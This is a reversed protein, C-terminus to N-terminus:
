SSNLSKLSSRILLAAKFGAAFHPSVDEKVMKRSLNFLLVENIEKEFDEDQNAIKIKLKDDIKRIDLNRIFSVAFLITKIFNVM